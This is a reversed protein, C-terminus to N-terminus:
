QPFIIEALKLSLTQASDSMVNSLVIITAEDEVFRMIMSVFGPIGGSHVLANKGHIEQIFWGYGYGEESYPQFMKDFSAKTLLRGTNLAQDWKYLDEVTSYLGGASFPMSMDIYEANGM